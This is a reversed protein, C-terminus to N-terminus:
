QRPGLARRAAEERIQQDLNIYQQQIPQPQSIPAPNFPQNPPQQNRFQDSLARGIQYADYATAAIGIPGAVRAATRGVLGAARGLKAMGSPFSGQVKKLAAQGAEDLYDPAKFNKFAKELGDQNVSQVFRQQDAPNLGRLFQDAEVDTGRPVQGIVTDLQKMIDPMASSAVRGPIVGPAVQSAAVDRAGMLPNAVYERVTQGASRLMPEGVTQYAMRPTVAPGSFGYATAAAAGAGLTGTIALDEITPPTYVAGGAGGAAFAAPDFESKKKSKDQETQGVASQGAAFKNPDFPM